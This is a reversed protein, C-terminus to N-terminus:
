KKNENKKARERAQDVLVAVLLYLAARDNVKELYVGREAREILKEDIGSKGALEARTWGRMERLNRLERGVKRAYRREEATGPLAAAFTLGACVAVCGASIGHLVAGAKDAARGHSVALAANGAAILAWVGALVTKEKNM